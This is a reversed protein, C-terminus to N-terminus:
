FVWIAIIFHLRQDNPIKTESNAIENSESSSTQGYSIRM